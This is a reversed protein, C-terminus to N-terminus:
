LKISKRCVLEFVVKHSISLLFLEQLMTRVIVGFVVSFLLSLKTQKKKTPQKM